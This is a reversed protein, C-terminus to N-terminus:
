ESLDEHQAVCDPAHEVQREFSAAHAAGVVGAASRNWDDDNCQRPGLGIYM